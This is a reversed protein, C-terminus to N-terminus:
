SWRGETFGVQSHVEGMRTWRRKKSDLCDAEGETSGAQRKAQRGKFGVMRKWRKKGDLCGKREYPKGAKSSGRM